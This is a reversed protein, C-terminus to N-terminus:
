KYYRDICYRYASGNFVVYQFTFDQKVVDSKLIQPYSTVSIGNANFINTVDSGNFDLKLDSIVGSTNKFSLVYRATGTYYGSAVEVQTSNDPLLSTEDGKFSVSSPSGTGDATNYRTFDWNYTGALPNYLFHFYKTKFNGSINQGQADTISLPLMYNQTSTLIIKSPDFTIYVTDLYKGAKLVTTKSTFTYCSDPLLLYQPHSDDGDNNYATRLADNIGLTITLNKYLPYGNAAALNIVIPVTILDSVGTTPIFDQAFNELGSYPIEVVTGLDFLGGKTNLTTDKKCSVFIAALSFVSIIIKKM